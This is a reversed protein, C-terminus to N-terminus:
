NTDVVRFCTIGRALCQPVLSLSLWPWTRLVQLIVKSWVGHMSNCTPPVKLLRLQAELNCMGACRIIAPENDYTATHHQKPWCPQMWNRTLYQKAECPHLECAQQM